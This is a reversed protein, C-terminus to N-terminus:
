EEDEGGGQQQPPLNLQLEPFGAGKLQQNLAPLDRQKLQNWSALISSLAGQSKNAADVEAITPAADAQGVEGYLAIVNANAAPLTLAKGAAADKDPGLLASIKQDLSELSDKLSGSAQQLLKEVQEHTTRAQTVAGSSQSVASELKMELEFQQQLDSASARVRPDM